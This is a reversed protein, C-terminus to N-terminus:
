YVESEDFESVLVKGRCGNVLEKATNANVTFVEGAAVYEGHVLLPKVAKLRVTGKSGFDDPIHAPRSLHKRNPTADHWFERYEDDLAFKSTSNFVQMFKLKAADLQENVQGAESVIGARQDQTANAIRVKLGELDSRLTTILDRLIKRVAMKDASHSDTTKQEISRLM